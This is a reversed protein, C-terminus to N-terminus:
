RRDKPPHSRSKPGWMWLSTSKRKRKRPPAKPLDITTPDQMKTKVSAPNPPVTVTKRRKPCTRTSAVLASGNATITKTSKTMPVGSACHNSPTMMSKPIAMLTPTLAPYPADAPATSLSRQPSQDSGIAEITRTMTEAKIMTPDTRATVAESQTRKKTTTVVAEIRPESPRHIPQHSEQAHVKPNRPIATRTRTSGLIVVTASEDSRMTATAQPAPPDTAIIDTTPPNISPPPVHASVPHAPNLTLLRM